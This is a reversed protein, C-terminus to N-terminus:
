AAMGPTAANWAGGLANIGEGKSDGSARDNAFSHLLNAGLSKVEAERDQGTRGSAGVESKRVTHRVTMGTAGDAQLRRLPM